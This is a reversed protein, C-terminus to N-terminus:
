MLNCIQLVFLASVYLFPQFAISAPVPLFGVAWVTLHHVVFIPINEAKM